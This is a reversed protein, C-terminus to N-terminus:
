LWTSARWCLASANGDLGRKGLVSRGSLPAAQAIAERSRKGCVGCSSTLLVAARRMGPKSIWTKRSSPLFKMRRSAASRRLELLDRPRSFSGKPLCSAAVLERDNGPTRMTVSLNETLQVDKFWHAVRISLPEEVPVEDLVREPGSRVIRKVSVRRVDVTEEM